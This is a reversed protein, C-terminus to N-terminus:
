GIDCPLGERLSRVALISALSVARLEEWSIPGDDGQDLSQALAAIEQSHGKDQQLKKSSMKGGACITVARFDDIVAVQGGGFM